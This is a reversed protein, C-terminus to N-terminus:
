AADVPRWPQAPMPKFGASMALEALGKSQYRGKIAEWEEIERNPGVEFGVYDDPCWSMAGLRKLLTVPLRQGSRLAELADVPLQHGVVPVRVHECFAMLLKLEQRCKAYNWRESEWLQYVVFPPGDARERKLRLVPVVEERLAPTDAEDHYARDFDAGERRILLLEPSLGERRCEILLRAAGPLGTYWRVESSAARDGIGSLWETRVHFTTALHHLTPQSLLDLLRDHHGLASLTFGQPALLSAIGPLDFGHEAFLLFFRERIARLGGIPEDLSAEAVGDLIMSIVSQVSTSFAAAQAEVFARTQPQLRITMPPRDSTVPAQLAIQRGRGALRHLLSEFTIKM